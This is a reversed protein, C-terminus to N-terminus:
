SQWDMYLLICIKIIYKTDFFFNHLQTQTHLVSYNKEKVKRMIILNNSVKKQRHIVIAFLEMNYCNFSHFMEAIFSLFFFVM